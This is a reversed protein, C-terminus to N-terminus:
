FICNNEQESASNYHDFTHVKQCIEVGKIYSKKTQLNKKSYINYYMYQKNNFLTQHKLSKFKQIKKHCQYKAMAM